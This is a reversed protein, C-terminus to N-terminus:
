ECKQLSELEEATLRAWKRKDTAWKDLKGVSRFQKMHQELAEKATEKFEPKMQVFRDLWQENRNGTALCLTIDHGAFLALEGGKAYQASDTVDIIHGMVSLLRRSENDCDFTRLRELSISGLSKEGTNKEIAGKASRNRLTNVEMKTPSARDIYNTSVASLKAGSAIVDNITDEESKKTERSEGKEKDFAQEMQIANQKRQHYEENRHYVSFLSALFFSLTVFGAVLATSTYYLTTDAEMIDRISM